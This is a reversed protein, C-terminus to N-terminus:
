KKVSKEIRYREALDKNTKQVHVVADPRTKFTGGAVLADATKFIEEEATGVSQGHSSGVEAEAKAIAVSGSKLAKELVTYSEATMTAKAEQLMKAVETVTGPIKPMDATVSKEIQILEARIDAKRVAETAAEARENAKKIEIAQEDLQKKLAIVTTSKAMEVDDDKAVSQDDDDDDSAAAPKKVFPAAKKKPPFAKVLEEEHEGLSKELQTVYDAVAEPTAKALDLKEPKALKPVATHEKAINRPTLPTSAPEELSKFLLIDADPNAGAACLDVKTIKLKRLIVPM